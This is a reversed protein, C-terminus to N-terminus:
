PFDLQLKAPNIHYLKGQGGGDPLDRKKAKEPGYGTQTFAQADDLARLVRRFDFGKTAERLGEANFLFIREDGVDEWYGARKHVRPPEESIEPNYTWNIDSFRSDRNVDIFDSIARLINCHEVGLGGPADRTELWLKFLSKAASTPEDQKWPVIKAETALEGALAGLAFVRAGRRLQPDPNNFQSLEKDRLWDSLIQELRARLTAPETNIIARIFAPGAHGYQINAADRISDVLQAASSFGHLSVFINDKDGVPIDLIRVAQGAKVPIGATALKTRISEEGSSLVAVRWAHSPRADGFRDARIKGQGQTLFYVLENLDRSLVESLEDLALLTDTHQVSVGELGNATARWTRLYKEGEGWVSAGACLVTTKGITSDGHYHIGAGSLSLPKLLPGSLAFSIGFMLKPNGVAPAAIQSQWDELTGASGYVATRSHAQYFVDLEGITQTPLVFAKASSWGPTDVCLVRRLPKESAIYEAVKRESNYPFDLGERALEKLLETPEGVLCDMPMAWRKTQGNRVLFELLRGYQRNEKNATVAVVRLPSCIWQDILVLRGEGNDHVDHFYVGVESNREGMEQASDYVRYCPRVSPLPFSEPVPPASDERRPHTKEYEERDRQHQQYIDDKLEATTIGLIKRVCRLLRGNDVPPNGEDNDALTVLKRLRRFHKEREQAGLRLFAKAQPELLLLALAATSLKPAVDVSKSIITHFFEPFRNGLAERCDDIGKGPGSLPIIPLRVEIPAITRALFTANRAFEYNSLIDSDGLFFVVQPKLKELALRLDSLLEPEDNKNNSYLGFGPLGIAWVGVEWLALDKFEGETWLLSAVPLGFPNDPAVPAYRLPFYAHRESGTKQTYRRGDPGPRVLRWRSFGIQKGDLDFYPIQIDGGRVIKVQHRALTERSIGPRAPTDDHECTVTHAKAQEGNQKQILPPPFEEQSPRKPQRPLANRVVLPKEPLDTEQTRLSIGVTREILEVADLFSIERRDQLFEIFDCHKGKARYHVMGAFPGEVEISISGDQDEIVWHKPGRRGRSELAQCLALIYNQITSHLKERDVAQNM